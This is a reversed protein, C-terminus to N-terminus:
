DEAASTKDVSESISGPTILQELRLQKEGLKLKLNGQVVFARRGRYFIRSSSTRLHVTAILVATLFFVIFILRPRSMMFKRDSM